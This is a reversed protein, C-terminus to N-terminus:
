GAQHTTFRFPLSNPGIDGDKYYSAVEVIYKMYPLLGNLTLMTVSDFNTKAQLVESWASHQNSRKVRVRYKATEDPTPDTVRLTVSRAKTVAIKIIPRPAAM